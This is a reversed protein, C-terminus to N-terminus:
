WKVPLQKAQAVNKTKKLKNKNQFIIKNLQEFQDQSQLRKAEVERM